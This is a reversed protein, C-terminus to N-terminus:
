PTSPPHVVLTDGGPNPHPKVGKPSSSQGSYEHGPWRLVADVVHGNQLMVLDMMGCSHECGNRFYLYTFEGARRVAAPAGWVSYVEREAMGPAITGTDDSVYPVDRGPAAIIPAQAIAPHHIPPPRTPEPAAAGGGQLPSTPTAPVGQAGRAGQAPTPTPAPPQPAPQLRHRAADIKAKIAAFQKNVAEKVQTVQKCGLTATALLACMWLRSRRM